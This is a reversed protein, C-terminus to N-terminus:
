SPACDLAMQQEGGNSTITFPIGGSPIIAGPGPAGKVWYMRVYQSHGGALSGSWATFQIGYASVPLTTPLSIKWTLTKGGTNKVALGNSFYKPYQAGCGSPEQVYMVPTVSLHPGSAVTPQPTPRQVITTSHPRPGSTATAHPTTTTTAALAPTTTDSAPVTPASNAVSNTPSSSGGQFPACGVGAAAILALTVAVALASGRAATLRGILGNIMGSSKARRSM